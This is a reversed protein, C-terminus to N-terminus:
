EQGKLGRNGRYPRKVGFVKNFYSESFIREGFVTYSGKRNWRIHGDRYNLEKSIRHGIALAETWNDIYSLKPNYRPRYTTQWPKSELWKRLWNRSNIM